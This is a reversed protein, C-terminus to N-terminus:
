DNKKKFLDVITSIFDSFSVLLMFDSDSFKNGKKWKGDEGKSRFGEMKGLEINEEIKKLVSVILAIETVGFSKTELAKTTLEEEIKKVDDFM